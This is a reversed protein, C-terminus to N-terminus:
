LILVNVADGAQVDTVDLPVVALADANVLGSLLHGGRGAPAVTGDPLHRVSLIQVRGAPSKWGTSAVRPVLPLPSTPRGALRGIVPRVFLTTSVFAAVPSGPVAIWPIGRWRALAQPRGPRMDVAAVHVGSLRDDGSDLLARVVDHAGASVGGSTVILDVDACAADLAAALADPRDGVAPQRVPVGGATRVGAALLHSNSDPIHGERLEEGSPVLESGTALVAVRPARHVDLTTAGASVAAAIVPGTARTGAACVVDGPRVDEGRPRIHTRDLRPVEVTEETGAVGARFRGTSTREVPVVADAGAPVPAGTMIRIAEGAGLPTGSGSGAAAEDIVRLAVPADDYGALDASRVAYGDMAAMDFPPIALTAVVDTALVRGLAADPPTPESPLPSVMRIARARHEDLTCNVPDPM